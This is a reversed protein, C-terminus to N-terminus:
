YIINSHHYSGAQDEKKQEVLVEHRYLENRRFSIIEEVHAILGILLLGLGWGIWYNKTAVVLLILGAAGVLSWTLKIGFWNQHIREVKIVEEKFFSKADHRFVRIKEPLEKHTKIGAWTGGIVFIFGGVVLATSLGKLLPASGSLKWLALACALLLGSALIATIYGHKYESQYYWEITKFFQTKM